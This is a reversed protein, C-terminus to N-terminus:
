TAAIPDSIVFSFRSGQNVESDIRLVSQHNVLVHKVISLGLGTGGTQSSRSHDVRYFRETLHEIHISEIGLGNDEVSFEIGNNVRQWVVKITSGDPSYRIANSVLNSCASLM